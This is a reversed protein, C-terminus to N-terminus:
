EAYLVLKEVTEMWEELDDDGAVDRFAASTSDRYRLKRRGGGVRDQVKEMLQEFSVNPPVRIAILDDTARDFIKIKKYAASGGGGGTNNSTSRPIPPPPNNNATSTLPSMTNHSLMGGAANSGWSSSTALGSANDSGPRPSENTNSSNPNNSNSQPPGRLTTDIRPLPSPGRSSGGGNSNSTPYQQQQHQQQQQNGGGNSYYSQGRSDRSQDLSPEYRDDEEGQESLSLAALPDELPPSSQEDLLQREADSRAFVVKTDGTGLSFFRRVLEHSLIYGANRRHLGILFRIYVDLDERRTNTIADDIFDLPGPMYPLIREPTDGGPSDAGGDLARGAEAPFADLLSIQFHYFDEYLRFITLRMAPNQADEPLFIAHIRFWYQDAEQHFSVVSASTFTGPPLLTFPEPQEEEADNPRTGSSTSSQQSSPLGSPTNNYDSSSQQQHRPQQQQQYSSQQQQQPQFQQQELARSQQDQLQGGSSKAFPSDVVGSSNTFEFRGLPISAAKYDATKQKWEDVRPIGGARLLEAVNEVPRGTTPDRIEVFSVPILGPGGLRGIPKAVFWEHNSQAIVIIPEGAKAQLEDPREADFDYQVIAYLPAPPKSAAPKGNTTSPVSRATNPMPPTSRTPSTSRGNDSKSAGASGGRGFEEFKAKPVLGRANSITNLAEYYM